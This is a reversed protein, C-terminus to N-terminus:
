FLDAVKIEIGLEEVKERFNQFNINKNAFSYFLTVGKINDKSQELVSLTNELNINVKDDDTSVKIKQLTNLDLSKNEDVMDVVINYLNYTGNKSCSNLNSVDQNLAELFESKDSEFLKKIEKEDYDDGLINKAEKLYINPQICISYNLFGKDIIVSKGVTTMSEDTENSTKYSTIDLIMDNTEDEYIDNAYYIQFSGHANHKKLIYGFLRTDIFTHFIEKLDKPQNKENKFLGYSKLINTLSKYKGKEESEHRKILVNHSNLILEQRLSYKRSKDTAFIKNDTDRRAMMSFDANWQGKNIEIGSLIYSKNM